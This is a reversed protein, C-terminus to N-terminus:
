QSMSQNIPNRPIERFLGSRLVFVLSDNFWHNL